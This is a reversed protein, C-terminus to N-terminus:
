LNNIYRENHELVGAAKYIMDHVIIDTKDQYDLFRGLYRSVRAYMMSEAKARAIKFGIEEDWTDGPRVKATAKVSYDLFDNSDFSYRMLQGTIYNPALLEFNAVCTVTRKHPNAYFRMTKVSLKLNEREM